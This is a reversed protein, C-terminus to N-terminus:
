RPRVPLNNLVRSSVDRMDSTRERLYEDEVKALAAAYRETVRHFAYEANVKDQRIVRVVEDILAPDELVLLHADFITAHEAGLSTAVKRQVDQLQERTRVLSQQM